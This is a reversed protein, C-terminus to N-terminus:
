GHLVGLVGGTRRASHQVVGADAERRQDRAPLGVAADADRLPRAPQPRRAGRRMCLHAPGAAGHDAPRRPVTMSEPHLMTDADVTVVIAATVTALATNLARHKGPAQEVVRRYDLGFRRAAEDALEGTRDTSGNDALVVEVPGPYTLGAIRELTPVIAEAENRAAILVTVAPWSGSPRVLELERYPNVLLTFLMFGIVLAPVYALLISIVWGLVPGLAAELEGRWPTSAWVAVTVWGATLSGALAFLVTPRLGAEPRRRRTLGGLRRAPPAPEAAQKSVQETM